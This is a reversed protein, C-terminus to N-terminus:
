NYQKTWTTWQKAHASRWMAVGSAEEERHVVFTEFM